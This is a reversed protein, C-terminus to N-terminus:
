ENAAGEVGADPQPATLVLAPADLSGPPLWYGGHGGMTAGQPQARRILGRLAAELRECRALAESEHHTMAALEEKLRDIEDNADALLKSGSQIYAEYKDGRETEAEIVATMGLIQLREEALEEELGTIRAELIARCSVSEALAETAGSYLQALESPTKASSPYLPQGSPWTPAPTEPETPTSM